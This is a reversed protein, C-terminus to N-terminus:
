DFLKDYMASIARDLDNSHIAFFMSIESAGQNIMKISINADALAKTARNAVGAFNRMGEGVVAIIALDTETHVWEPQFRHHLERVIADMEDRDSFQDQRIIVTIDDIGTPVHEISIGYDKFVGLVDYLYGVQRNLLYQKITVSVFGDDGSLGIIPYEKIDDRENSILTGELDPNLTNKIMVPTQEEYLPQLAEDHFITFGSYSLERMERYTINKIPHPNEVIGPHASYVYNQDTFNLYIEANMGRAVIAGSIDSGGRSFTVIDRGLSYGYFGPIVLVEERKTLKNIERYSEPILQADGPEDTVRIGAELPSVYSAEIGRSTLYRAIIRANFSEGRSKLADSLRDSDTVTDLYHNLNEELESIIEDDLGLGDTIDQYRELIRGMTHDVSRKSVKKDHLEILLDTVKIDDDHRKGPASVVLVKIAPDREIIDAVREIHGATALSSGGFKAVKM